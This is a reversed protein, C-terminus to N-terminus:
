LTLKFLLLPGGHSISSLDQEPGGAGAGQASESNSPTHAAWQGWWRCGSWPPPDCNGRSFDTFVIPQLSSGRAELCSESQHLEGELIWQLVSSFSLDLELWMSAWHGQRGRRGRWKGAPEPSYVGRYLGGCGCEERARSGPFKARSVGLLGHFGIFLFM